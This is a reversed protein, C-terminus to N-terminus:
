SHIVSSPKYVTKMIRFGLRKYLRLAGVNQATVELMSRNIGMEKFHRLAKFLLLTGLKLGRHRPTIGLNQVAGRQNSDFLAQITGCYEPPDGSDPQYSLLWTGDVLFNSRGSIEKMLRRCSEFEALSPFVNADIENKFSTYKVHAHDELHQEHWAIFYYDRPLPEDVPDWSELDLEMQYRKFYTIGM